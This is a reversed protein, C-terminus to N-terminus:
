WGQLTTREGVFAVSPPKSVPRHPQHSIRYLGRDLPGKLLVTGQLNKVLCFCAHFEV